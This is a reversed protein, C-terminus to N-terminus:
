WICGLRRKIISKIKFNLQVDTSIVRDKLEVHFSYLRGGLTFPFSQGWGWDQFGGAGKGTPSRPGGSM